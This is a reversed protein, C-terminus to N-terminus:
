ASDSHYDEERAPRYIGILYLMRGIGKHILGKRTSYILRSSKKTGSDPSKDAERELASQNERKM